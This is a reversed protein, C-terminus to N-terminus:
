VEPAYPKSSKGNTTLQCFLQKCSYLIRGVMRSEQGDLRGRNDEPEEFTAYKQADIRDSCELDAFAPHGVIEGDFRSFVVELFLFVDLSTGCLRTFFQFPSQM